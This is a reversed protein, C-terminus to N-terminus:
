IPMGTIIAEFVLADKVWGQAKSVVRRSRIELEEELILLRDGPVVPQRMKVKDMSLLVSCTLISASVDGGIAVVVRDFEDVALQELAERKTSDARVVHTLEGNLSQVLDEELDIGLVETGGAMLELALARGFRGLGIVAVSGAEAVRRSRDVAGFHSFRGM